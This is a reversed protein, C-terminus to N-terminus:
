GFGNLKVNRTKSTETIDVIDGIRIITGPKFVHILNQGFFVGSSESIPDIGSRSKRLAETVPREKPLNGKQQNINPVPCRACARVIYSTLDGIRLTRWYDEEYPEAGNVVINPRFRDMTIPAELNTNLDALSNISCLLIPFGDAFGTQTTAGDVQCEPRVTRTKRVRILRASKGLYDTFYNEAETGANMGSGPKKFLDVAIEDSSRDDALTIKLTGMGPATIHLNGDDVATKVLALEPMTRQSLFQGRGGVLMWERDYKLGLETVEAFEAQVPACSKIPYYSLSAVTIESM